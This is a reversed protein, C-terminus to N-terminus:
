WVSHGGDMMLDCGITYSSADSALYLVGGVMEEPQAQRHMPTTQNEHNLLESNEQVFSTMPTAVYGPSICNVYINHQVWEMALARTLQRVGAKSVCYPILMSDVVPMNNVVTASMSATNIIKGYRQPIMYKAEARCCYFVGTLNVALTREWSTLAADETSPGPVGVTGANNFAIDLRGFADVVTEVMSDVEAVDAVNCSVFLSERGIDRIMEVTERGMDEKLDVIAVDAGARAMGIACARGIGGAGGTVLAKKGTLDFVTLDTHTAVAICMGEQNSCLRELAGARQGVGARLPRHSSDYYKSLVYTLLVPSRTLCEQSPRWRGSAVRPRPHLGCLAGRSGERSVPFHLMLPPEGVLRRQSPVVERERCPSVAHSKCGRM